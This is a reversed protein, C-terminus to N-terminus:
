GAATLAPMALQPFAKDPHYLQGTALCHHLCGLLRNFLNRLAAPHRDGHDRRRQYHQKAPEAHTAAVFAWLYGAAALRDNKVKRHTISISRGSARTVPAAGAYAKLARADAFRARDDGIEALVRAGTVDALGPFSTVIAHDPHQRFAKSAAETLQDVSACEVNLTALLALAQTGMAEEVVPPQRLQPRRLAQQLEAALDEVGRQRGGRRLAAAIRTTSLKAAAAPTPAIALVARADASTLNGKRGTFAALFTPFYERLLSRLENSARTRRWTGDQHARALVAVAQVLESDRPLPRHAHADTRLINALVVADAHDSKKRSVSYRERYRAVAMPNISYVRRGSARLAAVLLGRPTEIAVPIACDTDGAAALMQVLTSFGDLDDGIRGRAVLHGHEDVVAIDHHQEAWDIGCYVTM